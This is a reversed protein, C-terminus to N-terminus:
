VVERLKWYAVAVMLCGAVEVYLLPIAIPGLYVTAFPNWASALFLALGAVFLAVWKAVGEVERRRPM